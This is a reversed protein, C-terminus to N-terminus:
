GQYVSRVNRFCAASIKLWFCFKIAHRLRIIINCPVRRRVYRPVFIVFCRDNPIVSLREIPLPRNRQVLQGNRVIAIVRTNNAIIKAADVVSNNKM